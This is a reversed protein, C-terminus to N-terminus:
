KLASPCTWSVRAVLRTTDEWKWDFETTGSGNDTLHVSWDRQAMVARGKGSPTIVGVVGRWGGVAYVGGGTFEMIEFSLRVGGHGHSTDFDVHLENGARRCVVGTRVTESLEFPQSMAVKVLAVKVLEAESAIAETTPVPRGLRPTTSSPGFEQEVVSDIAASRSLSSSTPGGVGASPSTGCASSIFIFQLAATVRGWRQGMRIADAWSHTLQSAIPVFNSAAIPNSGMYLTKCVEAQVM